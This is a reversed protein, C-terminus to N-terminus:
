NGEDVEASGFVPMWPTKMVKQTVVQANDYFKAGAEAAEFSEGEHKITGDVEVAFIVKTNARDRAQKEGIAIIALDAEELGRSLVEIESHADNLDDYARNLEDSLGENETKLSSIQDHADHLDSLLQENEELLTEIEEDRERITWFDDEMNKRETQNHADLLREDEVKLARIKDEREQTTWFKDEM